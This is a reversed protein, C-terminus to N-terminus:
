IIINILKDKLIHQYIQIIELLMLDKYDVLYQIVLILVILLAEM